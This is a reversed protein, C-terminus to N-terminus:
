TKTMLEQSTNVEGTGEPGENYDVEQLSAQAKSEDFEDVGSLNPYLSGADGAPEQLLPPTGRGEGHADARPLQQQVEGAAALEVSRGTSAALSDLGALSAAALSTAKKSISEQLRKKRLAATESPAPTRLLQNGLPIVEPEDNPWRGNAVSSGGGGGAGLPTQELALTHAETTTTTSM